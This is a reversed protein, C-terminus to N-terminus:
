KLFKHINFICFQTYKKFNQTSYIYIITYMRQFIMYISHVSNHVIFVENQLLLKIKFFPLITMKHEWFDHNGKTLTSKKKCRVKNSYWMNIGSYTIPNKWFFKPEIIINIVFVEYRM